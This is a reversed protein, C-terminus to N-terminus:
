PSKREAIWTGAFEEAERASGLLAISNWFALFAERAELETPFSVWDFREIYIRRREGDLRFTLTGGYLVVSVAASEPLASFNPRQYSRTMEVIAQAGPFRPPVFRPYNWVANRAVCNIPLPNTDERLNDM